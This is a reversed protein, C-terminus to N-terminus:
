STSKENIYILFIYFIALLLVNIISLVIKNVLAIILLPFDLILILFILTKYYTLIFYISM